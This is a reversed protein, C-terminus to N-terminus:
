LRKDFGIVQVEPELEIGFRKKVKNKYERALEFFDSAKGKGLNIFLNGHHGAIKIKGKQAGKAGVQELLYGAPIKGYVIKDKPIKELQEKSLSSALVNKFFSGPCLLEPRYKQARLAVIDESERKLSGPDERELEFEAELLVYKKRKFISERYAFGCESKDMWFSEKGDFVKVRLLYDSITRGYAGANGYIAGGVTGPIGAMKQMGSLGNGNLFDVLEQLLTGSKVYVRHDKKEIGNTKNVIVEGEYGADSVLLNSGSGMVLFDKENKIAEKALNVLQREDKAIFLRGAPGGIRLTTYNSLAKNM